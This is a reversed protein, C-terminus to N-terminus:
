SIEEPKLKESEKRKPEFSRPNKEGLAFKTFVDLNKMDQDISQDVGVKEWVTKGSVTKKRWLIKKDEEKLIAYFCFAIIGLATLFVALPFYEAPKEPIILEWDYSSLSTEASASFNLFLLGILIIVFFVSKTLVKKDQQSLFGPKM